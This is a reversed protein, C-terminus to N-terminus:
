GQTERRPGEESWMMSPGDAQAGVRQTASFQLVLAGLEEDGTPAQGSEESLEAGM